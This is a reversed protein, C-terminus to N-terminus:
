PRFKAKNALRAKELAEKAADDEKAKLAAERRPADAEELRVAEGAAVKAADNLQKQVGVLKYSPGYSSRILEFRFNGDQWRGLVEEENGYSQPGTTLSPAPKEVPGYTSSIAEILDTATMGDIQYRDYNVVIRYLAGNYFGFSLDKAPESQSVSRVLQPRWDIEQILAPRRHITKAASGTQKEVTQLGSGLQFDRYRSLDAARAPTVGVFLTLTM